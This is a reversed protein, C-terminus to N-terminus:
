SSNIVLKSRLGRTHLKWKFINNPLSSEDYIPSHFSGDDVMEWCESVLQNIPSRKALVIGLLEIMMTDYM